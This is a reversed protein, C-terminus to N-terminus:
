SQLIEGALADTSSQRKLALIRAILVDRRSCRLLVACENDSQGELTSMVFVFREFPDLLLIPAFPDNNEAPSAWTKLPLLPVEDAHEPAPMIMQIASKLVARRSWSRAWETFVGIGEVCEGMASVLCQEAKDHDATLLFAFLYLSHMEESFTRFFDTVTAYPTALEDAVQMLQLM